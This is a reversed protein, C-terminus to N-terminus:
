RLCCRAFREATMPAAFLPGRAQHFGMSRVALYDERTAVGAAVTRAGMADALAVIRRCTAQKLRDDACGAILRRDVTLEVFPFEDLEALAPWETGLNGIAVAINHYRVRRAIDKTLQLHPMGEAADIAVILGEFASNEPMERCLRDIADPRQFFALPLALAIEVHGHRRAFYRWDEFAQAIVGESPARAVPSHAAAGSLALRRVDIKPEYRLEARGAGRAEARAGPSASAAEDLLLEAVCRRIDGAAFPTPLLPLMALGLKEGLRCVASLMPSTRPGLVLVRGAYGRAALLELMECAHIGGLSSGIVVLDPRRSALIAPLESVLGCEVTALGLEEM